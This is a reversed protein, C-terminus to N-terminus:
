AVAPLFCGEVQEETNGISHTGGFVFVGHLPVVHLESGVGEAVEEQNPLEVM